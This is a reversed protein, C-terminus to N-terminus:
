KPLLLQLCIEQYSYKSESATSEGKKKGGGFTPSACVVVVFFGTCFAQLPREAYATMHVLELLLSLKAAQLGKDSVCHMFEARNLTKSM